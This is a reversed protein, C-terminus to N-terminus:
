APARGAACEVYPAGAFIWLFCPVFTVWLTMLGALLGARRRRKSVRGAPRCIRDGPDAPGPTTEALGLADIMQATTFWGHTDVVAQTMYALVAYAGGFTVVALTSFFM